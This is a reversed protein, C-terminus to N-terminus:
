EEGLLSLWHAEIDRKAKAVAKAKIKDEESLKPKSLNFTMRDVGFQQKIAHLRSTILFGVVEM